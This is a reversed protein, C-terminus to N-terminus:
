LFFYNDHIVLFVYYSVHQVKSGKNSLYLLLNFDIGFSNWM